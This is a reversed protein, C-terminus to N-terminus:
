IEAYMLNLGICARAGKSFPVFHQERLKLTPGDTVLWREPDIVGPNPFVAENYHM